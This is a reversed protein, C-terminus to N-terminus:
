MVQCGEDQSTAVPHLGQKTHSMLVGSAKMNKGHGKRFFYVESLNFFFFSWFAPFHPLKFSHNRPRQKNEPRSKVLLQM